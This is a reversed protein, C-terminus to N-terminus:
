MRALPKGMKGCQGGQMWACGAKGGLQWASDWNQATECIGRAWEMVWVPRWLVRWQIFRPTSKAWAKLHLYVLTGQVEATHCLSPIRYALETSLVVVRYRQQIFTSYFYMWFLIIFICLGKSSITYCDLRHVCRSVIIIVLWVSFPYFTCLGVLYLVTCISSCWLVM